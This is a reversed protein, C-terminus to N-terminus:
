YDKEIEELIQTLKTENINYPEVLDYIESLGLVYGADRNIQYQHFSNNPVQSKEAIKQLLQKIRDKM